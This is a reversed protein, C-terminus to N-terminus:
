CRCSLVYIKLGFLKVYLPVAFVVGFYCLGVSWIILQGISLDLPGQEEPSLLYTMAPIQPRNDALTRM